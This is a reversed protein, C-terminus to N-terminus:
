TTTGWLSVSTSRNRGTTINGHTWTVEYWQGDTLGSIDYQIATAFTKTSWNESAIQVGNIKIVVGNAEAANSTGSITGVMTDHPTKVFWHTGSLGDNVGGDGEAETTSWSCLLQPYKYYLYGTNEALKQGWVADIIESSAPKMNGTSFDSTNDISSAM